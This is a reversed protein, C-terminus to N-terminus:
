RGTRHNVTVAVESNITSVLVDDDDDDDDGHDVERSQQLQGDCDNPQETVAAAQRHCSSRIPRIIVLRL